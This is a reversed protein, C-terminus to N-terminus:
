FDGNITAMSSLFQSMRLMRCDHVRGPVGVFIDIFSGTHNVIGQILISCYYQINILDMGRAPPKQLRIHCGDIAGLMDCGRTTKHFSTVNAAKECDGLWTINDTTEYAWGKAINFKDSLKRFTNNNALYWLFMICKHTVTFVPQAVM